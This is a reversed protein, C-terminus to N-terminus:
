PALNANRPSEALLGKHAYGDLYNAFTSAETDAILYYHGSNTAASWSNTGDSPNVTNTGGASVTFFTTKGLKTGWAGYMLALQDWVPRQAGTVCDMDSQHAANVANRVPNTEISADAPAGSCAINGLSWGVIYIPPYGNQRTWRTFLSAYDVADSQFNWEAGKPYDGGMVVLEKVKTKFLQAGTLSSISDAPSNLVQVLCTAFGTEVIVTTHDPQASLAKRYLSACDPYGARTDSAKPNFKTLWVKNWTSDNCGLKTCLPSDPTNQQNAGIMIETHRYYSALAYIGPASLVNSSDAITALPKIWGKDIMKYFVGYNTVAGVDMVPGDDDFIMPTQACAIKTFLILCVILVNRM